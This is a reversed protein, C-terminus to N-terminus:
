NISSRCEESLLQKLSNNGAGRSSILSGKLQTHKMGIDYGLFVLSLTLAFNFINGIFYLTLKV